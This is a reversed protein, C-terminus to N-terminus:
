PRAAAVTRACSGGTEWDGDVLTPANRASSGPRGDCGSSTTWATRTPSSGRRSSAWLVPTTFGQARASWASLIRSAGTLHIAWVELNIKRDLTPTDRSESADDGLTRDGEWLDGLTLPRASASLGGIENFYGTLWATLGSIPAGTQTSLGSCIGWFNAHLGGLLSSVFKWGCLAFALGLALPLALGWSIAALANAPWGDNLAAAGIYSLTSFIAAMGGCWWLLFRPLLAPNPSRRAHLWVLWWGSLLWVASGGGAICWADVWTIPGTSRVLAVVVGLMALAVLAVIAWYRQLLTGLANAVIAVKSPQNLSAILVDFHRSLAKTPQFLNRLLSGKGGPETKGLMEPLAKLEEFGGPDGTLRRFEAAACGAAAIAGASAGGINKFHYRAALGSILKPYVVGSTIGGKMILDCYAPGTSSARQTDFPTAGLPEQTPM